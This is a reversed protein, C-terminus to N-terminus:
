GRAPKQGLDLGRVSKNFGDVRRAYGWTNERVKAHRRTNFGVSIGTFQPKGDPEIAPLEVLFISTLAVKVGSLSFRM